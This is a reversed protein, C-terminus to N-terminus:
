YKTYKVFIHFLIKYIDHKRQELKKKQKYKKDYLKFLTVISDHCLSNADSVHLGPYGLDKITLRLELPILRKKPNRQNSGIEWSSLAYVDIVINSNKYKELSFDYQKMEKLFGPLFEELLDYYKKQISRAYDSYYEGSQDVLELKM